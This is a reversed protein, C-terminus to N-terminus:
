LARRERLKALLAAAQEQPEGNPIIECNTERASIRLEKKEAHPPIANLDFGIDALSWNPIQKKNAAMINKLKPYRIKTNAASSIISVSLPPQSEWIEIGNEGPRTIMLVGTKYIEVSTVYALFPINLIEAIFGGVVGDSWDGSVCGSLILDFPPLKKIACVLASAIHSAPAHHLIPDNILVAEDAGRALATKLATSASPEGVTFATIHTNQSNADKLNLAIELANEDFSSIVLSQNDPLKQRKLEHDIAFKSTPIEPDIIQKICVAIRM